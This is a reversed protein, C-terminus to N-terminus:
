RHETDGALLDLAHPMLDMIAELGEVAGRTSGPLNVVLTSGISGAKARSLAAMPTSELGKSTMVHTLGPAERDLVLATAEPTVDRPGLGTGGTTLVLRASGVADHLATVISKEEDPVVTRAVEYGADSLLRALADGSLDDRAGAAVGDSVTIIHATHAM